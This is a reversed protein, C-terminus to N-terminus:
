PEATRARRRLEDVAQVAKWSEQYETMARLWDRDTGAASVHSRVYISMEEADPWRDWEAAGVASMCQSSLEGRLPSGRDAAAIVHEVSAEVKRRDRARALGRVHRSLTGTIGDWGELGLRLAEGVHYALEKPTSGGDVLSDFAGENIWREWLMKLGDNEPLHRLAAFAADIAFGRPGRPPHLVLRVVGARQAPTFSDANKSIFGSLAQDDPKPCASLLRLATDIESPNLRVGVALSLVTDPEVRSAVHMELAYSGAGRLRFFLAAHDAVRRRHDTVADYLANLAYDLGHFSAEAVSEVQTYPLGEGELCAGILLSLCPEEKRISALDRTMRGPDPAPLPAGVIAEAVKLVSREFQHPDNADVGLHDAFLGETEVHEVFFPCIPKAPDFSRAFALEKGVWASKAAAASAVVLVTTSARIQEEITAGLTDGLRLEREDLWVSVGYAGLRRAVRRAIVKDVHTHSIFIDPM